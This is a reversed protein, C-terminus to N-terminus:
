FKKAYKKGRRRGEIGVMWAVYALEWFVGAAYMWVMFANNCWFDALSNETDGATSPEVMDAMVAFFSGM